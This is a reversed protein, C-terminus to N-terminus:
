VCSLQAVIVCTDDIKGGSWGAYPTGSAAVAFPSPRNNKSAKVAFKALKQAALSKNIVGDKTYKNAIRLIESRFVNDLLGDSGLILIDGPMVPVTERAAVLTPDHQQPTFPGLQYPKNFCVESTKGVHAIQENRLLFWGCDGCNVASLVSRKSDLHLLLLTTSGKMKTKQMEYLISGMAQLLDECGEVANKTTYEFCHHLTSRSIFASDSCHGWGGVGDAVGLLNRTVLGSDEGAGFSCFKGKPDPNLHAKKSHPIM